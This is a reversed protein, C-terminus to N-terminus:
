GTRDPLQVPKLGRLNVYGFGLRPHYVGVYNSGSCGRVIVLLVTGTHLRPSVVTTVNFAPDKRFMALGAITVFIDGPRVTVRSDSNATLVGGM